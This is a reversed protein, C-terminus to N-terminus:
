PRTKTVLLGFYYFLAVGSFGEAGRVRSWKGASDVAEGAPMGVSPGQDNGIPHEM